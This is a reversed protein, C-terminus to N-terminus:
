AFLLTFFYWHSSHSNEARLYPFHLSLAEILLFNVKLPKWLLQLVSLCLLSGSLMRRTKMIFRQPQKSLIRRLLKVHWLIQRKLLAIRLHPEYISALIEDQSQSDEKLLKLRSFNSTKLLIPFKFNKWSAFNFSSLWNHNWKPVISASLQSKM